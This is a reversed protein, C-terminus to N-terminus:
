KKTKDTENMESQLIQCVTNCALVNFVQLSHGNLLRAGNVPNTEDSYMPGAKSYDVADWALNIYHSIEERTM